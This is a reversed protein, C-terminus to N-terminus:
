RVEDTIGGEKHVYYCALYISIYHEFNEFDESGEPPLDEEEEGTEDDLDVGVELEGAVHCADDVVADGLGVDAVDPTLAEEHEKDGEGAADAHYDGAKEGGFYAGAEGFLKAFGEEAM